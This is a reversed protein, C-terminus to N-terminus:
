LARTSLVEPSRLRWRANRSRAPLIARGAATAIARRSLIRAGARLTGISLGRRRAANDGPPEFQCSRCVRRAQAEGARRATSVPTHAPARSRSYAALGERM